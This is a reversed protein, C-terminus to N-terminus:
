VRNFEGSCGFRFSVWHRTVDNEGVKDTKSNLTSASYFSLTLDDLTSSVGLNLVRDTGLRGNLRVRDLNHRAFLAVNSAKNEVNYTFAGGLRTANSLNQTFKAVLDVNTTTVKEDAKNESDVQNRTVNARLYANLDGRQGVLAVNANPLFRDHVDFNVQTNLAGRVGDRELGYSTQLALLKPAGSCLAWNHVGLSVLANNRYHLRALVDASSNCPESEQHNLNLKSYATVLFDDKSFVRCDSELSLEGNDKHKFEINARPCKHKLSYEHSASQKAGWNFKSKSGFNCRGNHFGLTTKLLFDEKQTGEKEAVDYPKDLTEWYHTLRSM